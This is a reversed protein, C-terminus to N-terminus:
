TAHWLWEALHTREADHRMREVEDAAETMRGLELLALTRSLRSLHIAEEFGVTEAVMRSEDALALRKSPDGPGVLLLQRSVLATALAVPDKAERAMELGEVSTAACREREPSFYLAQALMALLLARPSGKLDGLATLAAELLSVSVPDPAGSLPSAQVFRMAAVAFTLQARLAPARRAAGQFAQPAPLNRGARWPADGLGLWVQLRRREDPAQLALAALAREYHAMADDYAGVTAAQEAARVAYEVAKAAMGLPAARCFHRALETLPPDADAGHLTELAIAVRQHLRAQ